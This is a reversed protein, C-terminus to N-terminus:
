CYYHKCVPQVVHTLSHLNHQNALDIKCELMHQTLIFM